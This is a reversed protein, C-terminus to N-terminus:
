KSPSKHLTTASLPPESFKFQIEKSFAMQFVHGLHILGHLGHRPGTSVLGLDQAPKPDFNKFGAFGELCFDIPGCVCM